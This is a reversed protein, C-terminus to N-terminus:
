ENQQIPLGRIRLRTHEAVVLAGEELAKEAGQIAALITAGRQSASRGGRRLLLVSPSHSQSLALLSGFDTDATVLVRRQQHAAELVVDDTAGLLGIDGVHLVDHDAASLHAAMRASLSEDLLLRV